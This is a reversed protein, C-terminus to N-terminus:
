YTIGKIVASVLEAPTNMKSVNNNPDCVFVCGLCDAPNPDTRQIKVPGVGKALWITTKYSCSGDDHNVVFRIKLTKFTGAPVTITQLGILKTDLYIGFDDFYPQFHQSVTQGVKMNAPIFRARIGWDKLWGEDYQCGAFLLGYQGNQIYPSYEYTNSGYLIGKYGSTCKQENALVFRDGTTYKWKNGADLPFYNCIRYIGLAENDDPCVWAQVEGAILLYILGIIVGLLKKM